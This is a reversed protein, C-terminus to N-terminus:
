GYCSVEIPPAGKPPSTTRPAYPSFKPKSYFSVSSSPPSVRDREWPRSNQGSVPPREEASSQPFSPFGNSPPQTYTPTPSGQQQQQHHVNEIPIAPHPYDPLISISAPAPQRPTSPPPPRSKAANNQRARASAAARSSFSFMSSDTDPLAHIAKTVANIAEVIAHENTGEEYNNEQERSLDTEERTSSQNNNGDADEDDSAPEEQLM